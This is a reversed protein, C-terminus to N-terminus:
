MRRRDHESVLAPVPRSSRGFKAKLAKYEDALIMVPSVSTSGALTITRHVAQKMLLLTKM